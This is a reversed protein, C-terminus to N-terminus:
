GAAEDGEGPEDIVMQGDCELNPCGLVGGNASIWTRTTRFQFQCTDCVCRIMRTGQKKPGSTPGYPNLGEQGPYSGLRSALAALELKLAAGAHTATPKGEFGLMRMPRSFTAGHNGTCNLAAHILEHGLIALVDIPDRETIRITIECVGDQAAERAWCQGITKSRMGRSPFGVGVRVLPVALGARTQFM